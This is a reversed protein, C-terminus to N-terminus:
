LSHPAGPRGTATGLTQADVTRITGCGDPSPCAWRNPSGPRGDVEREAAWCTGNSSPTSMWISALTSAMGSGEGAKGSDGIGIWGMTLPMLLLFLWGPAAFFSKPRIETVSELFIELYRSRFSKARLEWM